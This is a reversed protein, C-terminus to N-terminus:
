HTVGKFVGILPNNSQWGFLLALCLIFFGSVVGKTLRSAKSAFIFYIVLAISAVLAIIGYPM